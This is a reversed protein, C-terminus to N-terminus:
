YARERGLRDCRLQYCYFTFTRVLRTYGHYGASSMLFRSDCVLFCAYFSTRHVLLFAVHAGFVGRVSPSTKIDRIVIPLRHRVAVTKSAVSSASFPPLVRCLYPADTIGTQAEDARDVEGVGEGCLSLCFYGPLFCRAKNSQTPFRTKPFTYLPRTTTDGFFASNRGDRTGRM